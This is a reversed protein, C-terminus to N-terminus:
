QSARIRAPPEHRLVGSTRFLFEAYTDPAPEPHLVYGGPATTLETMRRQAYAYEAIVDRLRQALRRLRGAQPSSSHTM